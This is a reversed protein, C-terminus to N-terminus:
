QNADYQGPAPIRALVWLLDRTDVVSDQNIDAVADYHPDTITAGYAGLVKVLLPLGVTLSRLAPAPLPAQTFMRNDLEPRWAWALGFKVGGRPLNRFLNYNRGTYNVRLIYLGPHQVRFHIHEINNFNSRSFAVPEQGDFVEGTATEYLELDLNELELETLTGVAPNDLSLFNPRRMTVTRDWVLTATFFDTGNVPTTDTGQPPDFVFPIDILYDMFGGITTGSALRLSKIGLNAIDWGIRGGVIPGNLVIPRVPPPGDGTFGGPVTGSGNFPPRNDFTGAGSKGQGPTLSPDTDFVRHPEYVIGEDISRMTTVLRLLQAPTVPAEVPLLATLEALETPTWPISNANAGFPNYTSNPNPPFPPLTIENAPTQTPKTPDTLPSDRLDSLAYISFAYPISLVGAGQAMDLTTGGTTGVNNTVLTALREATRGDRNDQPKGPNGNNSWGPLKVASSLLVSRMVLSEISQPPVQALGFDQLLAVAGAVIPSAFSTGVQADFTANSNPNPVAVSLGLDPTHGIGSGRGYSTCPDPSNELLTPDVKRKVTGVGAALIHVGPRSNRVFNQVNNTYDFADIPGKSSFNVVTSLPVNTQDDFPRNPDVPTGREGDSGDDGPGPRGGGGPPTTTGGAPVLGGYGKGVAGVTLVNFATGPSGVTRGGVFPGGPVDGGAGGCVSTNDFTGSNGASIVATVGTMSVVADYALANTSDGSFDGLGGWSSNIVTVPKDLGLQLSTPKDALGFLSFHLAERSVAFSGFQNLLVSAVNSSFMQAAPATGRFFSAGLPTTQGAACSTTATAHEGISDLAPNVGQWQFLSIPRGTFVIHSDDPFQSEVTAFRARGGDYATNYLFQEDSPGFRYFIAGHGTPGALTPNGGIGGEDITAFDTTVPGLPLGAALLRNTITLRMNYLQTETTAAGSGKIGIIFTTNTPLAAAIQSSVTETEGAPRENIFTTFPAGGVPAGIAISAGTDTFIGAQINIVASANLAVGACLPDVPGVNYTGGVPEVELKIDLNVNPNAPITFKFYDEDAGDDLSLGLEFESTSGLSITGLPWPTEIPTPTDNPETFVTDGLLAADGYLRQMGRVEDLQPGRQALFLVQEMLKTGDSPCVTGLGLATGVARCVANELVRNGTGGTFSRASNLIIDGGDAAPPTAFALIPSPLTRMAIRIDGREVPADPALRLQGAFSAGTLDVSQNTQLFRAPSTGIAGANVVATLVGGPFATTIAGALETLTDTATATLGLTVPAGTTPTITLATADGNTTVTFGVGGVRVLDIAPAAIGTPHLPGPAGWAAGDDFNNVKPDDNLGSGSTRRIFPLTIAATSQWLAIGNNRIGSEPLAPSNLVAVVQQWRTRGGFNLFQNDLTAFLNSQQPGGAVGPPAPIPLGDPVFSFRVIAPTGTAGPWRTTTVFRENTPGYAREYAETYYRIEAPTADPAFVFQGRATSALALLVAVVALLATRVHNM